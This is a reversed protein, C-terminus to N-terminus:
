GYTLSIIVAVLTRPSKALKIVVAVLTLPKTHGEAPPNVASDPESSTGEDVKVDSTDTKETPTGPNESDVESDIETPDYGWRLAEKREIILLRGVLDFVTAIIGFIFPGRYGFHSYLAGGIPPGILLRHQLYTNNDLNHLIFHEDIM